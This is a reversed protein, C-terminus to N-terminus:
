NELAYVMERVTTFLYPHLQPLHPACDGSTIAGLLLEQPSFVLYLLLILM